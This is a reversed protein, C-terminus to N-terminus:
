GQERLEQPLFSQFNNLMENAFAAFEARHGDHVFWRVIAGFDWLSTVCEAGARGYSSTHNSISKLFVPIPSLHLQPCCVLGLVWHIGRITGADFMLTVIQGRLQMLLDSLKMQGAERLENSLQRRELAPFLESPHSYRGAHYQQCLAYVWEYLIDGTGASFSKFITAVV